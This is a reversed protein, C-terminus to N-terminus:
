ENTDQPNEKEKIYGPKMVVKNILLEKNKYLAVYFQNNWILPEFVLEYENNEGFRFVNCGTEIDVEFGQKIAEETTQM